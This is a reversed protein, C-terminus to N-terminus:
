SGSVMMSTGGGNMLDQLVAEEEAEDGLSSFAESQASEQERSLRTSSSTFSDSVEEPVKPSNSVSTETSAAAQPTLSAMNTSSM